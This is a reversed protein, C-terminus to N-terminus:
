KTPLVLFLTLSGSEVKKTSGKPRKQEVKYSTVILKLTKIFKDHVQIECRGSHVYHQTLKYSFM